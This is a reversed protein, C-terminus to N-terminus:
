RQENRKAKDKLYNVGAGGVLILVWWQWDGLFYAPTTIALSYMVISVAYAVTIRGM